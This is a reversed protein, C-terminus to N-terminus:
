TGLGPISKEEPMRPCLAEEQSQRSDSCRYRRDIIRMRGYYGADDQGGPPLQESVASVRGYGSIGAGRNNDYFYYFHSSLGFYFTVSFHRCSDVCLDIGALM